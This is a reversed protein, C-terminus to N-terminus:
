WHFGFGFVLSHQVQEVSGRSYDIGLPIDTRGPASLKVSPSLIYGVGAWWKDTEYRLGTHIHHQALISGMPALHPGTVPQTGYNYGLGWRWHDDLKFESGAIFVWQDRYGLPMPVRLDIPGDTAVVFNRWSSNSYNIWRAEGVLKCWPTVDWAAGACVRQPLQFKDINAHGLNIEPLGLISATADGGAIDTSWTISRYALGLTVTDIPRYILGLSAGGGFSEGRNFCVNAVSLPMQFEATTVEARVSAGIALKKSLKYSSGLSFSVNKCDSNANVETWPMLLPRYHYRTALGSKANLALGWSWRDSLAEAYAVDALPIMRVESDAHDAPGQWHVQPFILQGSFDAWHQGVPILSLTAPNVIQSLATDGVAVDAGGRIHSPLSVGTLEVGDSARLSSVITSQLILVGASLAGWRRFDCVTANQRTVSM